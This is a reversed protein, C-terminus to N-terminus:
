RAETPQMKVSLLLESMSPRGYGSATCRLALIEQEPLTCSGAVVGAGGQRRQRSGAVEDASLLMSAVPAAPPTHSSSSEDRPACGVAEIGDDGVVGDAEVVAAPVGADVAEVRLADQDQVVADAAGPEGADVHPGDDSNPRGEAGALPQFIMPLSTLPRVAVPSWYPTEVACIQSPGIGGVAQDDAAHRRGCTSSWPVSSVRMLTVGTVSGGAAAAVGIFESLCIFCGFPIVRGQRSSVRLELVM